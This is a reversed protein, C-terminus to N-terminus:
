LQRMHAEQEEYDGSRKGEGGRGDRERQRGYVMTAM